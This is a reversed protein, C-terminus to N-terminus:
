DSVPLLKKWDFRASQIAFVIQSKQGGQPLPAFSHRVGSSISVSAFEADHREPCTQAAPTLLAAIGPETVEAQILVPKFKAALVTLLSLCQKDFNM